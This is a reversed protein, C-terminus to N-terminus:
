KTRRWDRQKSSKAQIELLTEELSLGNLRWNLERESGDLARKNRLGRV